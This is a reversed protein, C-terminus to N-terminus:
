VHARLEKAYHCASGHELDLSVMPPIETRCLETSFECRPNFACGSPLNRPDPPSGPISPLRDLVDDFHPISRMLARTYPHGPTVFAEGVPGFEVTKGGYMVLADHASEAVVGLDHTILIIGMDLEDRMEALLAMIESQVTVDLATTPEDAILVKPDLAIALAIMVRQRMGGSFQHPYDDVRNSAAPIQVREMLEIARLRAAKASFGRKRRLAEGIQRGVTMVPNLSSMPDQFIMAIGDGLVSQFDARTILPRGEFRVSGAVIRGAPRPLLGSLALATTSKGSGSEGVIALTRGRDVSFSVGDVARVIGRRGHFEVTLDTVDFVSEGPANHM